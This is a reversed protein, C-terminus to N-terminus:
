DGGKLVSIDYTSNIKLNKQLYTYNISFIYTLIRLCAIKKFAFKRTKIMLINFDIDFTLLESKGVLRFFIIFLQEKTLFM